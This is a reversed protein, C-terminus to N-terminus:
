SRPRRDAEVVRRKPAVTSAKAGKVSKAAAAKPASTAVALKAKAPPRTASATSVGKRSAPASVRGLEKPSRTASALIVPSKKGATLARGSAGHRAAVRQAKAKSAVENRSSKAVVATRAGTRATRQVSVPPEAAVRIPAAYAAPVVRSPLNQSAVVIEGGSFAQDLLNSMIASRNASSRAGLVVGIIRRGDREASAVLNYGAAHTYGTKMGDVGPYNGLLRNHNSYVAQGYHFSQTSFYHYYHPYDHLLALALLAMDHATTVQYPDPLGSANAFTTQSMGLAHAKATMMWAFRPETGGLSEAIVAAADNASKTVLGLIANEVTIWQGPRLGLKTPSQQSAHESVPLPQNLTVRGDDLAEFLLYLSMMKTLSAPHHALDSNTEYLVRGNSADMVLSAYAAHAPAAVFVVLFAFVLATAARRICVPVVAIRDGDDNM